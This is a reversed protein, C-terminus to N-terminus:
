AVMRVSSNDDTFDSRVRLLRLPRPFRLPWVSSSKCRKSPPTQGEVGVYPHQMKKTHYSAAMAKYLLLSAPCLRCTNLLTLSFQIAAAPGNLLFTNASSVEVCEPTM